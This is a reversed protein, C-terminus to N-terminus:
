EKRLCFLHNHIRATYEQMRADQKPLQLLFSLVKAYRVSFFFSQLAIYQMACSINLTMNCTFTFSLTELVRKAFNM